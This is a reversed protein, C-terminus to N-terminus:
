FIRATAVRHALLVAGLAKWPAAQGTVVLLGESLGRFDLKSSSPQHVYLLRTMHTPGLAHWLMALGSWRKPVIRADLLLQSEGLQMHACLRECVCGDGAHADWSLSHERLKACRLNEAAAATLASGAPSPSHGGESIRRLLAEVEVHFSQQIRADNFAFGDPLPAMAEGDLRVLLVMLAYGPAQPGQEINGPWYAHYTSSRSLESELRQFVEALM